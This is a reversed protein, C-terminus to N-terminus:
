TNKIIDAAQQALAPAALFGHRYLGNIYLTHDKRVLKPMNDPFAPRIDVGIEMIEAEGFAPHLSQAASLLEYISRVSPSKNGSSEIMTAGVMFQHDDRPVIYLPIRPHLLRVPRKLKVEKTRIILMEGKVGRLDSLDDQASLGRADIRWRDKPPENEQWTQSFHIEGGKTIVEDALAQLAKRPNLHAENPYFLGASFRNALDPELHALEAHNVSQWNQTRKSFQRLDAQDRPMAVILSGNSQLAISREAWFKMSAKALPELAAPASEMECHPALMGGAWWSCCSNDIAPSKTRIKVDHGRELLVVAASLGAIGSGIIEILM